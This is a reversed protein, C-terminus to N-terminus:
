QRLKLLRLLDTGGVYELVIMLQSETEFIELVKTVSPHYVHNM